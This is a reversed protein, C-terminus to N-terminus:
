KVVVKMTRGSVRVFYVGTGVEFREISSCDNRLAVMKGQADYVRVMEGEAGQVMITGDEAAVVYGAVVDEVGSPIQQFTAEYRADGDVVITRVSDRNGDSWQVFEYGANAAANITVTDQYSTYSGAGTETGANPINRNISIVTTTSGISDPRIGVIAKNRDQYQKTSPNLAGIAYYGDYSGGWGWNFYFMGTNDYGCCIFSHGGGTLVNGASYQMPRGSDIESKM